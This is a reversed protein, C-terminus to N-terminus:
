DSNEFGGRFILVEYATARNRDLDLVVEAWFPTTVGNATVHNGSIVILGTVPACGYDRCLTLVPGSPAALALLLVAGLM